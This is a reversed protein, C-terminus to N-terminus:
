KNGVGKLKGYEGSNKVLGAEYLFLSPQFSLKKVKDSRAFSLCLRDRARTVAVYFLRREEELSGGKAALKRNPFRGDMLDLIYVDKFELGKSAHVTLLNVGEGKTLENSGLVMANLFRQNDSYNKTLDKILVVKRRINVFAREKLDENVKKNKDMARRTALIDIIFKYINSESIAQVMSVPKKIKQIRKYLLYFDNFFRAGDDTFKPHRLIPSESIKPDLGLHLFNSEDEMDVFDDFLALQYYVKRKEFPNKITTDPHMIGNYVSGDGLRKLAEFIEKATASGIGKAYEFIHIFAMLDKPNVFFAYIDFLVKVEKADFFSKGGKRKCPIGLERLSAEIGDASSNNRFIVAVDEYRSSHTKIMYSIKSYQEFLEKFELLTPSIPEDKRVVILEKPYIRDNFKIVRDALSLILATSRYNKKLSFMKSGPFKKSFSGILNINAGNFAFISQDYDGVCFLSSPNMKDILSGQLSNTDQYEDVLVEKFNVFIDSSLLDRTKILLDNFNIYGYSEKTLEYENAIDEYIDCFFEHDPYYESMWDAFGLKLETNQYFSYVDYLYNASYEAIKYNLKKFERKEYISRFLTKLETQQKLLLGPNHKKLLKYCIAHFTGAEIKSTVAKPFFRTLREVMETAAKNTFTLLLIEEPAVNSNLLCAIRGVITSTKGTGASAIVINHGSEATAANLQEQNLLSLPM